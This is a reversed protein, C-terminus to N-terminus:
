PEFKGNGVPVVFPKCFFLVHSYDQLSANGPVDYVQSGSFATVKGIELANSITNTNNTLYVYLGPLSSSTEFDESLILQLSNEFRLTATGELRYSSVTELIASRDDQTNQMMRISDANVEDPDFVALEFSSSLGNALYTVTSTGPTIAMALGDGEITLVEPNSTEWAFSAEEEVGINNFYVADFQFDDDVIMAEIQNVVSIRPEIFDEIIDTGICSYMLIAFLWTLLSKM